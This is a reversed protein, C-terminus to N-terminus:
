LLSSYWKAKKNFASNNKSRPLPLLAKCNPGQSINVQVLVSSDDIMVDSSLDISVFSM